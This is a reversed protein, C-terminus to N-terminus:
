RQAVQTAQLFKPTGAPVFNASLFDNQISVMSTVESIRMNIKKNSDNLDALQKQLVGTQYGTGAFQNVGYIYSMLLVANIAILSVSFWFKYVSYRSETKKIVRIGSVKRSNFTPWFNDLALAKLM